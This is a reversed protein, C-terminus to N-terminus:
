SSILAVGPHNHLGSAAAPVGSVRCNHFSVQEESLGEIRFGCGDDTLISEGDCPRLDYQFGQYEASETVRVDVDSFTVDEVCSGPVAYVLVGGASRCRINCFHVRRLAGPESVTNNKMRALAHMPRRAQTITIPEGKGWWVAGFKQTEIIIDSFLVDEVVGEDRNQIGIGRNSDTIVLNSVVVNRIGACNESGIKLACSTSRLYCNSILIHETPGYYEWERRSKLCICDDASEVHCNIIRVFRCGDVDIGDANPVKLSNMVSLDSLSVHSCGVLHIGWHAANQVTVGHMSVGTCNRFLMIQPRLDAGDYREFTFHSPEEGSMFAIGQGDIVGAGTISINQEDTAQIWCTGEGTNTGFASYPRYREIEPIAQICAGPHLHVNINSKLFFPGAMYTGPPVEVTGGGGFSVEDIARQIAATDDAIGNGLAGHNKLSVLITSM